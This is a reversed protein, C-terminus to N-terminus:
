GTVWLEYIEVLPELVDAGPAPRGYGALFAALEATPAGYRRQAVVQPALDYAWPGRGALELDALVLGRDTRLVNDRHLDGHVVPDADAVRAAWGPALRHAEAVLLEVDAPPGAASALLDAVAGLPDAGAVSAASGATGDHLRRALAGLDEPDVAGPRLVEWRWLTVAVPRDEVRVVHPQDGPGVLEVAPVDRDALARAVAVQAAVRAVPTRDDVRALVGPRPLGVLVSTGVRVVTAGDADLGVSRALDAVARVAAGARPSPGRDADHAAPM